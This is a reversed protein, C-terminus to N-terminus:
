AQINEPDADDKRLGDGMCFGLGPEFVAGVKIMRRRVLSLRTADAAVLVLVLITLIVLVATM